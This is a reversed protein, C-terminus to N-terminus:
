LGEGEANQESTATKQLTLQNQSTKVLGNQTTNFGILEGNHMLVISETTILQQKNSNSVLHNLYQLTAVDALSLNLGNERVGLSKLTDPYKNFLTNHTTGETPKPHAHFLALHTPETTQKIIKEIEDWDYNCTQKQGKGCSKLESYTAAEGKKGILVGPHEHNTPTKQDARTNNIEALTKFLQKKITRSYKNEQSTGSNVTPLNGVPLPLDDYEFPASPNIEKFDEANLLSLTSMNDLIQDESLATNLARNKASGSVVKMFQKEDM